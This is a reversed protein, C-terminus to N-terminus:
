ARRIRKVLAIGIGFACIGGALAAVATWTTQAAGVIGTADSQAMASNAVVLGGAVLAPVWRRIRFKKM